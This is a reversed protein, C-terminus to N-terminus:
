NPIEVLRLTPEGSEEDLVDEVTLYIVGIEEESEWGAGVNGAQSLPLAIPIGQGKSSKNAGVSAQFKPNPLPKWAGKSLEEPFEPPLPLTPKQKAGSSAARRRPSENLAQITRAPPPPAFFANIKGLDEM